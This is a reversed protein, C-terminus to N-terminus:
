WTLVARNPGEIIHIGWGRTGHQTRPGCLPGNLKKPLRELYANIPHLRAHHHFHHLFERRDMPPLDACTYAYNGKRVEENPPLILPKDRIGVSYNSAINFQFGQTLPFFTVVLAM